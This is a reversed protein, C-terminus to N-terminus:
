LQEASIISTSSYSFLDNCLVAIRIVTTHNTGTSDIITGTATNVGTVTVGPIAVPLMLELSFMENAEVNNDQFIPVTVTTSTQGAPISATLPTSDFDDGALV